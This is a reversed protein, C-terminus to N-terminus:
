KLRWSAPYKSVFPSSRTVGVLISKGNMAGFMDVRRIGSCLLGRLGYLEHEVEYWPTCTTHGNRHSKASTPHSKLESTVASRGAFTHRVCLLRKDGAFQHKQYVDMM